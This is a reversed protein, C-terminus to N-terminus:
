TTGPASCGAPGSSRAPLDRIDLRGLRVSVTRFDPKLVSVGTASFRVDLRGASNCNVAVRQGPRILIRSGALELQVQTPWHRPLSLEFTTRLAGSGAPWARLRGARSLWGDRFRGEVILSARPTGQARWLDFDGAHAVITANAFRATTGFGHFLFEGHVNTFSGDPGIALRPASFADTAVADGLLLERKISKNWYLQYLLDQKLAVPTEIATVPGKAAADVWTLRTPLGARVQQTTQLDVHTALITATLAISIALGIGVVLKPRYSLAVALLAGLTALLAIALSSGSTGFRTQLYSVAFLFQSDMKFTATAYDSLPLRAAAVAVVLSIGVVVARRPQGHKIYLGFGVPVLAVLVFLYREKFQSSDAAHATAEALLLVALTAAFAAFALERRTQPRSLAAIAGPIMVVGTEVALLFMQLLFWKVYNADLPTQRERGYYGFLAILFLVAVPALTALAVRHRRWLSRREIVLAAVLYAPVLVFYEVRALTALSALVLFGIQGRGTPSEITRLGLAIAGLVLPYAVMDSSTFAVLVLEPILLAYVAVALSYPTSLRLSRALFYIPIAALSAAVANEVQVLHYATAVPFLRWLPAALIPELVGPFHVTEGRIQLHGHGISRSISTYIYEDPFLRPM